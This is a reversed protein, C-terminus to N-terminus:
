IWRVVHLSMLQRVIFSVFHSHTWCLSLDAQCGGLRILTKATREIPLQPGLNRWASLSSESWVPRIGLSIQTKALRETMKDTKVHPPEHWLKRTKIIEFRIVIVIVPNTNDYGSWLDSYSCIPTVDIMKLSTFVTIKRFIRVGLINTTIVRFNSSHPEVM